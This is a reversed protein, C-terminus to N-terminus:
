DADAFQEPTFEHLLTLVPVNRLRALEILAQAREADANEIQETIQLLEAREAATLEGMENKQRLGNLQQQQEPTLRRQIITLLKQEDADLAFSARPVMKFRLFEAFQALEPLTENPLANILAIVDQRTIMEDM